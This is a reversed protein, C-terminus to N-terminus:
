INELHDVDLGLLLLTLLRRNAALYDGVYIAAFLSFNKGVILSYKTIPKSQGKLL